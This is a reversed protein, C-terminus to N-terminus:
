KELNMEFREFYGVLNGSGDRVPNIYIRQNNVSVNVFIDGSHNKMKEFAALIKPKTSEHHFDFISRGVLNEYGRMKHYQFDATKNVYRVIHCTDVFVIPYPISDLILAHIEHENM